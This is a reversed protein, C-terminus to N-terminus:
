SGLIPALRDPLALLMDRPRRAWNFAALRTPETEPLHMGSLRAFTGAKGAM